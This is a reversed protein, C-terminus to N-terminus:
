QSAQALLTPQARGTPSGARERNLLYLGSLVVIAAGYLLPADPRDGFLLLGAVLGYPLQCYQFAALTAAGAHRHAQVMLLFGAAGLLGGVASLLLDGPPPPVFVGAAFPTMAVLMVINGYVGFAETTEGAQMRRLLVATLAAALAGALPVLAEVGVFGAGGPRVMVLVGAFGTGVAVWRQWGVPERLLPLSLATVLLPATFLIAYADAIPMRGYSWFAANLAVVGLLGRLLHLGPRRTRLREQGGRRVTLWLMLALGVLTQLWVIQFLHYRASLLKVTCDMATFLAFGALALLIGHVAGRTRAEGRLPIALATM